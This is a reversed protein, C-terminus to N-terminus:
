KFFLDHYGDFKLDVLRLKRMITEKKAACWNYVRINKTMDLALGIVMMFNMIKPPM